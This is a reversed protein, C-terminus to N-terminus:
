NRKLGQRWPRSEESRTAELARPVRGPGVADERAVTEEPTHRADAVRRRIHGPSLSAPAPRTEGRRDNRPRLDYQLCDVPFVIRCRWPPSLKLESPFGAIHHFPRPLYRWMHRPSTSRSRTRPRTKGAKSYKLEVNIQWTGASGGCLIIM